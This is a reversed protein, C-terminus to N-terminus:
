SCANKVKEIEMRESLFPLDNHLKHLNKKKIILLMLRLFLDKMVKKM